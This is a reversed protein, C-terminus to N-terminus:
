LEKKTYKKMKEFACLPSHLQLFPFFLCFFAYFPLCLKRTM